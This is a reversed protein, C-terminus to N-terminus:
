LSAWGRRSAVVGLMASFAIGVGLMTSFTIGMGRRSAVVGLMATFAIGVGLMTSFAFGVLIIPCSLKCLVHGHQTSKSKPHKVMKNQCYTAVTTTWEILITPVCKDIRM